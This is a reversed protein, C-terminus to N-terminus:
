GLLYTKIVITGDVILGLVAILLVIYGAWEPIKQKKVMKMGVFFLFIFVVLGFIDFFEPQIFNLNM